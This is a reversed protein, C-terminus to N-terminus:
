ETAKMKARREDIVKDRYYNEIVIITFVACIFRNNFDGINKSLRPNYGDDDFDLHLTQLVLYQISGTAEFGEQISKIKPNKSGIVKLFRMFKQDYTANFMKISDKIAFNYGPNEEWIEKYTKKDIDKYLQRLSKHDFGSFDFFDEYITHKGFKYFASDLQNTKAQKKLREEYFDVITNIDKLEEKTFVQELEPTSRIEKKSVCSAM